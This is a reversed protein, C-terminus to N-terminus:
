KLCHVPWKSCKTLVENNTLLWVTEIITEKRFESEKFIDKVTKLLNLNGFKDLLERTWKNLKPFTTLEKM